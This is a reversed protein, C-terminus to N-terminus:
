IFARRWPPRSPRPGPPLFAVRPRASMRIKPRASMGALRAIEEAQNKEPAPKLHSPMGDYWGGYFRWINRVLFETEDYVPQLYPRDALKEPARVSHIIKDLSAGRNMLTVTQQHIAELFDATDTLAQVVRDEGMVPVGHGPLLVAPKLAAMARLALAWEMAYRQVKQPNGGNPISWIFLDGTCLVGTDPFFIWTHDDTEGRAHRLLAKVGGVTIDLRDPYTIDPYYFDDSFAPEGVGGRFQRLNIIANWSLTERYRKFRAPMAEHAIVRPLPWGNANAETVYDPVGFVHDNHGHTFIATHLRQPTVSRIGDFKVKTDFAAAPDIIILGDDTERVVANSFGRYFWTRDAVAEIGRPRGFPHRSYTDTKGTWLAEALDLIEGM